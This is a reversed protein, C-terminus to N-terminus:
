LIPRPFIHLHMPLPLPEFQCQHYPPGQIHDVLTGYEAYRFILIPVLTELCCRIPKLTHKHSMQSACVTNNISCASSWRKCSKDFKMVFILRDQLFDQHLTSCFARNIINKKDYKNTVLELEKAFFICYPFYLSNSVSILQKLVSECNRMM